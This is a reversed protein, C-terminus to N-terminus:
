CGFYEGNVKGACFQVRPKDEENEALCEKRLRAAMKRNLMDQRAQKHEQALQFLVEEKSGNYIKM